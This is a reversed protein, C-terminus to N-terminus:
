GLMRLQVPRIAGLLHLTTDFFISMFELYLRFVSRDVASELIM